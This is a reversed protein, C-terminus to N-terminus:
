KIEQILEKSTIPINGTRSVQISAMISGVLASEWITGKSALVLSSGVLMSDGAGSSDKSALNFAKLKDTINLIPRNKTSHITIGDAGSKLILNKTQSSKIINEAIVIIGDQQNQESIRAEKETPTILNMKKFRSINGIQSSSQSDATMIIKNKIGIKTIKDVLSQPLCGYNFDSFIILDYSKIKKEVRRIVEKQVENSISSQHLYSVKLLTKDESRYRQKLTTPRNSDIIINTNVGIKNLESKAFHYESDDGAISILDVKAGLASSHAAVIGAGGLFKNKYQPSVALAPEESSVGLTKCFIYEDIILDGIVCVKLKKFKQIVNKINDLDINHREIYDKPLEIKLSAFETFEKSLIEKSSYITEGSSFILKGGYSSVINAEENFIKEFEKGKLVINPKLNLLTESVSNNILVVKNVLTCNKVAELRDKQDIYAKHSALKDSHVGIILKSGIERAFKFLKLHGSHLINFMGSVFITKNKKM